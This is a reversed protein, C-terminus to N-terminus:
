KPSPMKEAIGLWVALRDLEPELRRLEDAIEVRRVASAQEQERELDTKRRDMAEYRDWATSLAVTDVSTTVTGDPATTTICGGLTLGAVILVATINRYDVGPVARPASARTKRVNNVARLVAALTSVGLTILAKDSLDGDPIDIQSLAGGVAVSYTVFSQLAKKVVTRKRVKAM